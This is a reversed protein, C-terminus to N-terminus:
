LNLINEIIRLGVGLKIKMSILIVKYLEAKLNVIYEIIRYNRFGCGAENDHVLKGIEFKYRYNSSYMGM